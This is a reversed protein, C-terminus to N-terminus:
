PTPKWVEGNSFIHAGTRSRQGREWTIIFEQEGTIEYEKAGWYAFRDLLAMEYDFVIGAGNPMPSEIDDMEWDYNDRMYFTWTM